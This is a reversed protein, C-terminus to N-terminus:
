LKIGLQEEWALYKEFLFHQDLSDELWDSKPFVSFKRKGDRLVQATIELGSPLSIPASYVVIGSIGENICNMFNLEPGVISAYRLEGTTENRKALMNAERAHSDTGEKHSVFSERSRLYFVLEQAQSNWKAQAFDKWSYKKVVIEAITVLDVASLKERNESSKFDSKEWGEERRDPIKNLNSVSFEYLSQATAVLALPYRGHQDPQSIDLYFVEAFRDEKSLNAKLWTKLYKNLPEQRNNDDSLNSM